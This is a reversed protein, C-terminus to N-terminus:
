EGWNAQKPVKSDASKQPDGGGLALELFGYAALALVALLALWVM